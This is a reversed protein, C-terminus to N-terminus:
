RCAIRPLAALKSSSDKVIGDFNAANNQACTGSAGSYAKKQNDLYEVQFVPKGAAIFQKYGVCEMFQNCEENLAWDIGADLMKKEFSGNGTSASAGNKLGISMGRAHAANILMTNFAVQDAETINFGTNYSHLDDLDPEIGECGKSRALDLRAMMIQRLTKGTSGAPSDLAKINVFKEDPFGDITKGLIESAYDGADPRGKAWDGTEVYCVVYIGKAKLRGILDAPSDFMDIDYMKPGSIGDLVTEDVTGTLQWQWATGIRPVTYTGNPPPTPTPAPTPGAPVSAVAKNSLESKSGNTDVAQVQYSYTSGTKVSTDVYTTAGSAVRALENGDRYIIYEKIPNSGISPKWSLGISAGGKAVLETPPAPKTSPSFRSTSYIVDVWFNAGNAGQNPFVTTDGYAIVGNPGDVGNKMALLKRRGQDDNLFYKKDVSYRGKPAHYSVIYTNRAAIEVPKSFYVSQWGKNSENTFVATALINGNKDWLTGTHKGTNQPGKYFRVGKVVGSVEARFKVGLEASKRDSSTIVEPTPNNWLSYTDTTAAQLLTTAMFGVAPFILAVALPKIFPKSFFASLKSKNAM